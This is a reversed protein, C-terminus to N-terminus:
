ITAQCGVRAVSIALLGKGASAASPGSSPAAGGVGDRSVHFSMPVPVKHFFSSSIQSTRRGDKGLYAMLVSSGMDPSNVSERIDRCIQLHRRWGDDVVVIISKPGCGFRCRCEELMIECAVRVRQEITNLTWASRPAKRTIHHKYIIWPLSPPLGELCWRSYHELRDAAQRGVSELLSAFANVCVPCRCQPNM